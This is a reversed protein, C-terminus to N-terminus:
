TDLKGLLYLSWAAANHLDHERALALNETLMAHGEEGRGVPELFHGMYNRVRVLLAVDPETEAALRRAAEEFIPVAEHALGRSDHYKFLAEAAMGLLDTRGEDLAWQWGARINEITRSITQGANVQERGILDSEFQQLYHLYYEAHRRAIEGAGTHHRAIEAAGQASEALKEGGFQRMLEHIEYSGDTMRRLFGRDVLEAVHLMNADTVAQLAPWDCGGRFISAQAFSQRAGPSLTQWSEEILARMSRHRTPVDPMSVTLLDISRRLNELIEQCTIMRTWVAALEIGLPMGDTLHCIELVALRNEDTLQFAANARQASNVFLAVAESERATTGTRPSSMRLTPLGLGGLVYVTEMQLNLRERSTALIAIQPAQRLLEPILMVGDLLHELNDLILLISRTRLYHCLRTMPDQDPTMVVGLTDVITSPIQAASAVGALSVFWVGDPFNEVQRRAYALAVQTKGMGGPGIVTLQRCTPQALLDAIEALEKKRGLFPKLEEPLNYPPPHAEEQPATVTPRIVPAAAAPNVPPASVPPPAQIQVPPSAAGSRGDRIAEYLAVTEAAPEANLEERLLRRCHDFQRMALDAQDNHWFANMLRVHAEERWPELDILRQAHPVAGAYKGDACLGDVVMTLLDTVQRQLVERQLLAWEDFAPSDVVLSSELFPARYLAIANLAAQRDQGAKQALAQFHLVDVSLTESELAAPNLQITRRTTLLYPPEASRDGIVKRLNSLAYRLNGRASQELVDPWLLGALHSRALPRMGEVALYTLLARAKVTAFTDIDQGDVQVAFAGFLHISLSSM